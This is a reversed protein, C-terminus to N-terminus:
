DRAISSVLSSFAGPVRSKPSRPQRGPGGEDELNEESRVGGMQTPPFGAKRPFKEGLVGITGGTLGGRTSRRQHVSPHNCSGGGTGMFSGSTPGWRGPKLL